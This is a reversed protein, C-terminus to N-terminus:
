RQSHLNAGRQRDRALYLPPHLDRGSRRSIDQSDPHPLATATLTWATDGSDSTNAAFATHPLCFFFIASLALPFLRM